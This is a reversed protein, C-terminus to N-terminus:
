WAEGRVSAHDKISRPVSAATNKRSYRRITAHPLSQRNLRGLDTLGGPSGDGSSALRRNDLCLPNSMFFTRRGASRADRSIANLPVPSLAVPDAPAPLPVELAATVSADTERPWIPASPLPTSGAVAPAVAPMAESVSGLWM